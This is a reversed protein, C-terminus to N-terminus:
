KHGCNLFPLLFILTPLFKQTLMSSSFNEGTKPVKFQPIELTKHFIGPQDGLMTSCAAIFPPRINSPIPFCCELEVNMHEDRPSLLQRKWWWWVIPERGKVTLTSTHIRFCFIFFHSNLKIFRFIM